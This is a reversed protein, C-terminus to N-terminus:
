SIKICFSLSLRYLPESCTIASAIAPNRVCFLSTIKLSFIVKKDKGGVKNKRLVGLINSLSFITIWISSLITTWGRVGLIMFFYRFSPYRNAMLLKWYEGLYRLRRSITSNTFISTAPTLSSFPRTDRAFRTSISWLKSFFHMATPTLVFSSYSRTLIM